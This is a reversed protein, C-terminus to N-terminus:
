RRAPRERDLGLTGPTGRPQRARVVAVATALALAVLAGLLVTQRSVGLMDMVDLGM